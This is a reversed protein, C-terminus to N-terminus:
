VGYFADWELEDWCLLSIDNLLGLFGDMAAPASVCTYEPAM